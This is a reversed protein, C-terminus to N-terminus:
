IYLRVKLEDIANNEQCFEDPKTFRLAFRLKLEWLFVYLRLSKMMPTAFVRRHKTKMRRPAVKACTDLRMPLRNAFCDVNRQLRAYSSSFPM